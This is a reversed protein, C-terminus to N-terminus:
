QVCSHMATMNGHQFWHQYKLKRSYKSVYKIRVVFSRCFLYIFVFVNYYGFSSDGFSFVSRKGHDRVIM